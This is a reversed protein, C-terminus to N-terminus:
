QLFVTKLKELNWLGVHIVDDQIFPHIAGSYLELNPQYMSFSGSHSAILCNEPDKVERIENLLVMAPISGHPVPMQVRLVTLDEYGDQGLAMIKAVTSNSNCHLEIARGFLPVRITKEASLFPKFIKLFLVYGKIVLLRRAEAANLNALWPCM